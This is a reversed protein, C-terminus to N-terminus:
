HDLDIPGTSITNSVNLARDYLRMDCLVRSPYLVLESADFRVTIDGSIQKNKGDPTLNPIRQNFNLTDNSGQRVLILPISGSMDYMDVLLNYQYPSGPNFPPFTDSRELGIDGEKDEYSFRVLLLSDKEFQNKILEFGLYEIEPATSGVEGEDSCSALALFFAFM